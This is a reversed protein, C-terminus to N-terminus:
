NEPFSNSRYYRQLNNMYLNNSLILQKENKQNYELQIKQTKNKTNNTM